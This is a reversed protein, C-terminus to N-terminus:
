ARLNNNIQEYVDYYIDDRYAEDFKTEGVDLYGKSIIEEVMIKRDIMNDLVTKYAEELSMNNNSVYNSGGFLTYYQQLDEVTFTYDNTTAVVQEYFLADNRQFINCGALTFVCLMLGILVTFFRKKLTIRRFDWLHLKTLFGRVKCIIYYFDCYIM